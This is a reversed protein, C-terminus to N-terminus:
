RAVLEDLTAGLRALDAPNSLRHDGGKVLTVVVDRSVLREALRRSTRWPVSKDGLGHLLRVPCDLAIIGRLVRHRRGEEFLARRYTYGSPDYESPVTISGTAMLEAREAADLRPWLLEETFDPAAAIGILARVRERRALAVLLMIWGGMSSGVVIQPGQTLSDLVAIADETWRGITGDAADGTSAGHGFHDFRV